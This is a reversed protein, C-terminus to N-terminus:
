GPPLGGGEDGMTSLKVKFFRYDKNVRVQRIYPSTWNFNSPPFNRLIFYVPLPLINKIFQSPSFERFILYLPLISFLYLLM